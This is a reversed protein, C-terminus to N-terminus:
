ALPNGKAAFAPVAIKRVAFVIFVVTLLASHRPGIGGCERLRFASHGRVDIEFLLRGIVENQLKSLGIRDGEVLSHDPIGVAMLFFQLM